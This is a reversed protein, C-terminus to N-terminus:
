SHADFGHQKARRVSAELSAGRALSTAVSSLLSDTGRIGAALPAGGISDRPPEAACCMSAVPEKGM